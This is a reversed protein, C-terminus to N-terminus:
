CFIWWPLGKLRFITYALAILRIGTNTVFHLTESMLQAKLPRFPGMLIHYVLFNFAGLPRAAANEQYGANRHLFDKKKPPPNKLTKNLDLRNKNYM